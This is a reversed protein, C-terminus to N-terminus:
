IEEPEIKRQNYLKKLEETEMNVIKEIEKNFKGSKIEELRTSLEKAKPQIYKAFLRRTLIAAQFQTIEAPCRLACLGCMLCDFSLDSCKSIDGRIISQVYDMVSIDQPCAKTCTNCSLCRLIEPFLRFITEASPELKEIDYEPKRVPFFPIQAVEMGYEIVTQCALGVKIKYSDPTRYIAGCAGCFGGRCGCGRVLGYGAYEMAKMITMGAPVSYKKGLIFIDIM